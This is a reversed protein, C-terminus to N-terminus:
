KQDIEITEKRGSSAVALMIGTGVIVLGGIVAWTSSIGDLVGWKWLALAIGGVLLLFGLLYMGTWKM